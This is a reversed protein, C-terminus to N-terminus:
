FKSKLSSLLGAYIPNCFDGVESDNRSEYTSVSEVFTKGSETVPYISVRGVYNSVSNKSVPGPGDDISYTFFIKM